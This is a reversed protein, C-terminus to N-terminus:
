ADGHGSAKPEQVADATSAAEDRLRQGVRGLADEVGLDLAMMLEVITFFGPEVTRGSEIARLTAIAIGAQQALSQQSLHLELRRQRLLQALGEAKFRHPSSARSPRNPM